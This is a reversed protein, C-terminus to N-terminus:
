REERAPLNIINDAEKRFSRLVLGRPSAEHYVDCRSCYWIVSTQRSEVQTTPGGCTCAVNPTARRLATIDVPVRM